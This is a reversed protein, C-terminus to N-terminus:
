LLYSKINQLPNTQSKELNFGRGKLAQFFVEITWRKKYWKKLMKPKETGILYLLDGNKDYSLCLNLVTKDVCINKLYVYEKNLLLKEAKFFSGDAFLLLHHKPVRVCFNIGEKKLWLLWKHGIFERDMLIIQIREKGIKQILSQFINIRDKWNSNGSNNDLMEFYLPIAMKGVSAVICLINIQTKGFDWETRDISLVLKDHPVFSLLLLILAQYDFKVKQFFDQIRREISTAKIPKDIKDALESFLVSRSKILSKLLEVLFLQRTKHKIIGSKRLLNYIKTEPITGM